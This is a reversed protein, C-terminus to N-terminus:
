AAPGADEFLTALPLRFGPLVPDGVLEDTITVVRIQTLSEYVHVVQRTPYVVWVQRVGATFYEYVRNLLDAADDSPSVVEATLDPVVDWANIGPPPVPRNQPWRQYSVFALDPRRQPLNPGLRFLMEPAV